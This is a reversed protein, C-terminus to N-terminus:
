QAQLESVKKTAEIITSNLHGPVEVQNKKLEGVHDNLLVQNTRPRLQEWYRGIFDLPGEDVDPDVLNHVSINLKRTEKAWTEIAEHLRKNEKKLDEQEKLEEEVFEKM